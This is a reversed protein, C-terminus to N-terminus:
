FKKEVAVHPAVAGCLKAMTLASDEGFLTEIAHHYRSLNNQIPNPQRSPRLADTPVLSGMKPAMRLHTKKARAASREQQRVGSNM